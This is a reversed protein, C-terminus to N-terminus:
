QNGLYDLHNIIANITLDIYLKVNRWFGFKVMPEDNKELENYIQTVFMIDGDSTKEPEVWISCGWPEQKLSLVVSTIGCELKYIYHPGESEFIKKDVILSSGLGYSDRFKRLEEQLMLDIEEVLQFNNM